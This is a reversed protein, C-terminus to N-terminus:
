VFGTWALSSSRDVQHPWYVKKTESSLPVMKRKLHSPYLVKKTESSLPVMKRRLHSPYLVKKTESSFPFGDKEQSSLPSGPTKRLWFIEEALFGGWNPIRRM